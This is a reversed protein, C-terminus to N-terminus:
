IWNEQKTYCKYLIYYIITKDWGVTTVFIFFLNNDEKTNTTLLLNSSIQYFRVYINQKRFMVYFFKVLTSVM